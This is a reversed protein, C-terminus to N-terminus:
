DHKVGRKGKKQKERLALYFVLDPIDGLHNINEKFLSDRQISRNVHKQLVEQLSACTRPFQFNKGALLDTSLCIPLEISIQNCTMDRRETDKINLWM